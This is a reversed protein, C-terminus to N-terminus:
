FYFNNVACTNIGATKKFMEPFTDMLM